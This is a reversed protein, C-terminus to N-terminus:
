VWTAQSPQAESLLRQTFSPHLEVRFEGIGAAVVLQLDDFHFNGIEGCLERGITFYYYKDITLRRTEGYEYRGVIEKFGNIPSRNLLIQKKDRPSRLFVGKVIASKEGTSVLDVTFNDENYYQNIEIKATNSKRQRDALYLAVIAASVSGFGSVWDALSGMDPVFKVTSTPNLNIGAILGLLGCIVCALLACFGFIWKM